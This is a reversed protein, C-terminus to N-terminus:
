NREFAEVSGQGVSDDTSLDTGLSKNTASGLIQMARKMVYGILPLCGVQSVNGVLSTLQM